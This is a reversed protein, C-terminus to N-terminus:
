LKQKGKFYKEYVPFLIHEEIGIRQNLMKDIKKFETLFDKNKMLKPIPFKQYKNFFKIIIKSIRLMEESFSEGLKKLEIIKSKNLEKYIFDELKIHNNLLTEYEKFKSVIDDNNGKKDANKIYDRIGLLSYVLDKHEEKLRNILEM